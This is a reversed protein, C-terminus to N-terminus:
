GRHDTEKLYNNISEEMKEDSITRLDETGYDVQADFHIIDVLEGFKWTPNREWLLLIKECIRRMILPDKLM